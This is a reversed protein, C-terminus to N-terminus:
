YIRNEHKKIHLRLANRSKVITECYDCKYGPHNTVHLSEVHRIMDHKNVAEKGCVSCFWKKDDSQYMM